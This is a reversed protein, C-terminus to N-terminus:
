QALAHSLRSVDIDLRKGGTASRIRGSAGIVVELPYATVGYRRAFVAGVDAYLPFSLGHSKRHADNEAPPRNTIGIVNSAQVVRRDIFSQWRLMAKECPTCEPDLFLVVAGAEAALTRVDLSDGDSGVIIVSPFVEGVVLNTDEIRPSSIAPSGLSRGLLVGGAVVSVLLVAWIAFSTLRRLM